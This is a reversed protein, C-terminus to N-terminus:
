KEEDENEKQKEEWYKQADEADRKESERELHFVLLQVAGGVLAVVIQSVFVRWDFKKEKNM